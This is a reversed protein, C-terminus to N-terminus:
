AGPGTASAAAAIIVVAGAVPAPPLVGGAAAAAIDQAWSLLGPIYGAACQDIWVAVDLPTGSDSFRNSTSESGILGYDGIIEVQGDADVLSGSVRISLFPPAVPINPQSARPMAVPLSVVRVRARPWTADGTSYGVEFWDAGSGLGPLEIRANTM